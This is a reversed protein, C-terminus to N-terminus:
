LPKYIASRGEPTALKDSDHEIGKYADAQTQTRQEKIKQNERYLEQPIVMLYARLAGGTAATGVIQSKATGIDTTLISGTEKKAKLFSYGRKLMADVRGPTNNVWRSELGPIKAAVLRQGPLAGISKQEKSADERRQRAQALIDKDSDIKKVPDDIKKTKTQEINKPKNKTM